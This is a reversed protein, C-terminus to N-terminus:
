RLAELAAQDVIRGVRECRFVIRTRNYRGSPTPVQKAELDSIRWLSDNLLGGDKDMIVVRDGVRLWGTPKGGWVDGVIDAHDADHLTYDVPNLLGERLGSMEGIWMLFRGANARDFVARADWRPTELAWGDQQARDLLDRKIHVSSSHGTQRKTWGDFAAFVQRRRDWGIGVTVRGHESALPGEHTRTTQIRFDNKARGKGEGTVFWSYLLLRRTDQAHRLDVRTPNPGGSEAVPQRLDVAWGLATLADLLQDLPEGAPGTAPIQPLSPM